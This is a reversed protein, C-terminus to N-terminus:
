KNKKLSIKRYGIVGSGTFTLITLISYIIGKLEIEQNKVATNPAKEKVPYNNNSETPNSNNKNPDIPTSEPKYEFIAEITSNINFPTNKIDIESGDEGLFKSFKFSHKGEKELEQERESLKKNLEDLKDQSLDGITKGEELEFKFLEVKEGKDDTYEVTIEVNFKPIVKIDSTIVTDENLEIEEGKSNIFVFRSFSIRNEPVKKLSELDEDAGELDKFTKFSELDYETGNVDVKVDYIAKVKTHKKLAEEGQVEEGTASDVFKKIDHPIQSRLSDLTTNEEVEFSYTDDAEIEIDLVYKPTLTIDDNIPTGLTVDANESDVFKTFRKDTTKTVKDIITKGNNTADNLTLGEELEFGEEGTISVTKNYKAIITTHETVKTDKSYTKEGLVYRSFKETEIARLKAADGDKLAQGEDLTITDKNRGKTDNITVNVTYKVTLTTDKDFTKSEEIKTEKDDVFEKFTKNTTSKLSNLFELDKGTVSSLATGDKISVTGLSKGNIDKITITVNYVPTITINDNIEQDTTIAKGNAEYGTLTKGDVKLNELADMIEQSSSLPKGEELEYKKSGITVEVAFIATLNTNQAFEYENDIVKGSDDVFHLFKRDAKTTVKDYDGANSNKVDALRQGSDIEFKKTETAGNITIEINYRAMVITDETIKTSTTFEEDNAIYGKFNYKDTEANEKATKLAKEIAGKQETLEDISKGEPLGKFEQIITDKYKVTLNVTYVASITMNDNIAETTTVPTQEEGYVYEKFHKGKINDQFKTELAEILDSNSELTQGEEIEYKAGDKGVTIEVNFIPTLIANESFHTEETVIEEKENRFKKAFKRNEKTTVAAYDSSKSPDIDKLTENTNIEFEKNDDPTQGKITIKINYKASVTTNKSVETNQDFDKGDQDVAGKYNHGADKTAKELDEFAATVENQDAYDALKGGEPLTFTHSGIQVNVNYKADIKTYKEIPTSKLDEETTLETGNVTYKDIQKDEKELSKLAETLAGNSSIPMNEVVYYDTSTDEGIEVKYSVKATIFIHKNFATGLLGSEQEKTFEQNTNTEWYSHFKRRKEAKTASNELKDLAARIEAENDNLTEGKYVKFGYEGHVKGENAKPNDYDEVIIVDYHYLGEINIDETIKDPVEENKTGSKILKEFHLNDGNPNEETPTIDTQLKKLAEEAGDGVLASVAKGQEVKYQKDKLEPREDKITVYANYKPVLTISKEIEATEKFETDEDKIVFRAFREEKDAEGVYKQYKAKTYEEGYTEAVDKLTKGTDIEFTKKTCDDCEITVVANYEAYITTNLNLTKDFIAKVLEDYGDYSSLNMNEKNEKDTVSVVFGKFNKDASNKLTELESKIEEQKDSLSSLTKGEELTYKKSGINVEITYIPKITTTKDIVSEKTVQNNESDVFKAFTKSELSAKEIEDMKKALQENTSVKQGEEVQYEEESLTVYANHKTVLEINENIPSREDFTNDTIEEGKKYALRSFEAESRGDLKAKKYDEQNGIDSITQGVNIKFTTDNVKVSVSHIAEIIVDETIKVKKLEEIEEKGVTVSITGGTEGHMIYGDLTKNTEILAQLKEDIQEVEELTQGYELIDASTDEKGIKVNVLKVLKAYLDKNEGSKAKPYDDAETEKAYETKYEKDEFWGKFRYGELQTYKEQTLENVTAGNDYVKVECNGERDYIGYIAANSLKSYKRSVPIDEKSTEQYNNDLNSLYIQSTNDITAKFNNESTTDEALAFLTGEKSTKDQDFVKSDNKININVNKSSSDFSFIKIARDNSNTSGKITANDVNFSLNTQKNIIVAETDTYISSPGNIESGNTVNFKNGNGNNFRVAVRGSIVSNKVNITTNSSEVNIGYHTGPKALDSNIVDIESNNGKSTVELSAADHRPYQGNEGRLIGWLFIDDVTLKVDSDVEIFIMDHDFPQSSSAFKKLNVEKHDGRTIKLPVDIQTGKGVGEITIAKNIEVTKDPVEGTYSGAQLKLIDGDSASAVADKLTGAGPKVDIIKGEAKTNGILAVSVVSLLMVFISLLVIGKMKIKKM